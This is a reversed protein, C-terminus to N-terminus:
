TRGHCRKTRQLREMVPPSPMRQQLTDVDEARREIEADLTDRHDGYYALTARIQALSLHPHQRPM